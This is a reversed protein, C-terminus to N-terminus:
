KTIFSTVDTKSPKIKGDSKKLARQYLYYGVPLFYLMSLVRYIVTASLALAKEVGASALVATMLGEYIGVGGPLVAILGAFNAVAYAIILAGPNILSGFAIYVMYITLVETINILLAWGLLKKIQGLDKRLLIYDQHLDELTKEVKAIDIVSRRNKRFVGILKNLARPLWSVFANIRRLESIIYVGVMVGFITMFIITSSILITLPSTNSGFSLMIMGFFLLVLFSIFTLTFRLIQALTSKATSIGLNKLRLSLYSFGSVGGSPFVHNVFNLELAVSYLTKLPVHEGQSAFFDRYLRAVGYYSILQIPIMLLLAWTNLSDLKRFAEIIQDWSIVVLFVLAGITIINLWFKFNLKIKAAM